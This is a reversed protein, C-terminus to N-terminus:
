DPICKPDPWLYELECNLDYDLFPAYTEELM